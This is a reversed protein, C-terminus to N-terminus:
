KPAYLDAKWCWMSSHTGPLDVIVWVTYPRYKKIENGAHHIYINKQFFVMTPPSDALKLCLKWLGAVTFVCMCSSNVRGYSKYVQHGEGWHAVNSDLM